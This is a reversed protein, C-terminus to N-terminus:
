SGPDQSIRGSAVLLELFSAVFRERHGQPLESAHKGGVRAVDGRRLEEFWAIWSSALTM